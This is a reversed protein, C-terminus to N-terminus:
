FFNTMQIRYNISCRTLLLSNQSFKDKGGTYFDDLWYKLKTPFLKTSFSKFRNFKKYVTFKQNQSNLYFNLNTLTKTAYFQFNIFNKFDFSTKSNCFLIKNNKIDSLTTNSQFNKVFKRLLQWDNKM